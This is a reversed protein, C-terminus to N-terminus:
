WSLQPPFFEHILDEYYPKLAEIDPPVDSKSYLDYPNFLKVYELMQHDFEDM